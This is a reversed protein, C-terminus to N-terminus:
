EIDEHTIVKGTKRIIHFAKIVKQVFARKYGVSFKSKYADNAVIEISEKLIKNNFEIGYAQSYIISLKEGIEKLLAIEDQDKKELYIKVGTPNIEDDFVTVLRQRLAEYVQSRGDLFSEDPVAYIWMSNRFNTHGCEDILERLNNLLINKQKSSLSPTIEAEDMLVVLGSYGMEKIWQVLSRIMRFATSKDIKEFVGFKKLLTKPPNETELWQLLLLFDDEQEKLLSSFANKIANRFSLSEYSGLENIYRTLETLVDEKNLLKSYFENYKDFYWKRIVTGIGKEYGEFINEIKPPPSVNTVIEKYVLDLKHFPTSEISLTIYAVMYNHKWAHERLSYLFHTKGTGYHGIVMKFTSGGDRIFSDLYEEDIAKLYPSLGATFYQFGYEPPNGSEAREIIQRAVTKDLRINDNYM